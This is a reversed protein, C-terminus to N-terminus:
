AKDLRINKVAEIFQIGMPDDLLRLKWEVAGM